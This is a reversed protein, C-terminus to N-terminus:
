KVSKPKILITYNNTDSAADLFDTYLPLNYYNGIAWDNIFANYGKSAPNGTQGGPYIGLGVPPDALEVVM